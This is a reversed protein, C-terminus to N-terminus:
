RNEAPPAAHAAAREDQPTTEEQIVRRAVAFASQAAPVGCYVAVQTLVERIEEPTLGSRLGARVHLALQEWQSQATLATLAIVSRTRRDIGEGAWVEGWAYRTVWEEFPATLADSTDLVRDVHADGLVERRTKVGQDYADSRGDPIQPGTGAELQAANSPPQHPPTPVIVPAPPPPGASSEQWTATFHRILLETVAGPQEVPVLHAAGPVLALRADRIGAVLARANAPPTKEDEAGAVVLTPIGINGLEARLDFAALAECAAIYCGPDTTRVMQVAWDMIAPQAQAFAQSFWREPTTRAIPDLGNTRVVVGRQRWSDPTGFRPSSSILALSSVRQPAQLALQAGVAGGLACGAYGFRDAGEEDLTALLRTALEAASSAPYAPSGGHGPLDFRLVRWHRTLEPIQRDWMHWTAGLASGLVLLPADEPGDIRHQLTKTESM